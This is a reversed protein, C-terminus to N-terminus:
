EILIHKMNLIQCIPMITYCDLYGARLINYFRQLDDRFFYLEGHTSWNNYDDLFNVCYM